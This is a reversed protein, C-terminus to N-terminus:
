KQKEYKNSNYYNTKKKKLNYFMFYLIYFMINITNFLKIVYCLRENYSFVYEDMLYKM